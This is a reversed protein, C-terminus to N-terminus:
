TESEEKLKRYVSQIDDFNFGKRMLSQIIKNKLKEDENRFDYKRRIFEKHIIRQQEESLLDWEEEFSNVAECIVSKEVGHFYLEQKMRNISKQRRNGRIYNDAYRRDDIYKMDKMYRIVAEVIDEPYYATLLKRRVDQESKDSDKLMYFVRERARRPLLVEFIERSIEDSLETQERIGYKYLESNYVSIKIDEDLHILSKKKDLKHISTVLM